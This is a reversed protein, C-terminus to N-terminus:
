AGPSVLYRQGPQTAFQLRGFRDTGLPVSRGAADRVRIAGPWPPYLRCAAGRESLIELSTIHGGSHAATVLFAGEARLTQFSADITKPWAPFIRLGGDWSQLMMEQLPASVGLSESWGGARGYDAVAMGWRLGNPRRWRAVIDRFVPVDAAANFDGNRLRQIVGLPYQGFYWVYAGDGPPPWVPASPREVQPRFIRGVSFEPPNLEYCEKELGALQPLPQGDDGAAHELRDRWQRQLDEDVGLAEAARIASRLCYRMHRMVQSRDTYDKPNGSFGDEGQNSPFAHYLGDRGKKLFDTYFLACDRIVPYGERRLWDADLTYLYRWWYHNAAWGTMYAMRGMPAVGLPDDAADIPYMTLQIFAGRCNYYDRAIKRGIPLLFAM